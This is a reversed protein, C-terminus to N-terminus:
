RPTDWHRPTRSSSRPSSYEENPTLEVIGYPHAVRFGDDELLRLAYDEYEILKRVSSVSSEDEVRGYTTTRV